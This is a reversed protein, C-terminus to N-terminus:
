FLIEIVTTLFTALDLKTIVFDAPMIDNFDNNNNNNYNYYLKITFSMIIIFHYCNLILSLLLLSLM